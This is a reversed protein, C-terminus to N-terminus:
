LHPVQSSYLSLTNELEKVILERLRKPKVVKAISGFSLIWNSLEYNIPVELELLITGNRKHIVKQSPHYRRLDIIRSSAEPFELVVKQPTGTAIFLATKFFDNPDYDADYKFKEGTFQVDDFRELAFRTFAGRWSPVRAVLYLGRKFTVLTYPEIIIESPNGGLSTYEVELTEERRLAVLIRDLKKIIEESYQKPGEHVLYLKKNLNKANDIDDRGKILKSIGAYVGDFAKQLSTGELFDFMRRGLFLATIEDITHPINIKRDSQPVSWRQTGDDNEGMVIKLGNKELTGIDRGLTKDSTGLKTGYWERTITGGNMLHFYLVFCRDTKDLSGGKKGM